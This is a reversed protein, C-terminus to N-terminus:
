YKRAGLYRDNWYSHDLYSITVGSSSGTHIFAGDGLYIGAHSPGKKYTEFFVLDGRKPSSVSTTANWIDSVTRPLELEAQQYLYVLFGSCDFGSPSTGGWVYPTGILQEAKAIIQETAASASGASTEKKESAAATKQQQAQKEQHDITRQESIRKLDASQLFTWVESGALGDVALSQERQLQRVAQQTTSGYIGDAEGSYYGAKILLEQLDAVLNDEDGFQLYERSEPSEKEATQQITQNIYVTSQHLAIPSYIKGEPDTPLHTYFTDAAVVQKTGILHNITEMGAIGDIKLGHDKQYLSVAKKTKEGFKGDITYVYYGSESLYSQMTKVKPGEDGLQLVTDEPWVSKMSTSSIQSADDEKTVLRLPPSSSGNAKKFAATNREYLLSAVLGTEGAPDSANEILSYLTQNAPFGQYSLQGATPVSTTHPLRMGVAPVEQGEQQMPGTVIPALAAGAVVSSVIVTGKHGKLNYKSM